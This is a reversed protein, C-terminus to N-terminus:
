LQRGSGKDVPPFVKERQTDNMGFSLFTAKLDVARIDSQNGGSRCVGLTVQKSTGHQYRATVVNGSRTFRHRSQPLLLHTPGAREKGSMLLDVLNHADVPLCWLLSARDKPQDLVQPRWQGAMVEQPGERSTARPEGRVGISQPGLHGRTARGPWYLLM